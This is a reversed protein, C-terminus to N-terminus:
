LLLATYELLLKISSSQDQIYDNIKQLEGLKLIDEKSWESSKKELHVIKMLTQLFFITDQKSIHGKEIDGMMEKVIKLREPKSAALFVKAKKFIDDTALFESIKQQIVVVRSQLTSLIRSSSHIILFFHTESGPEEFIKLLANQAQLTLSDAIIIFLRRGNVAAKRSHLEQIERADDIAFSAYEKKWVNPNGVLKMELQNEIFSDLASLNATRNGVIIYSHHLTDKSLSEFM